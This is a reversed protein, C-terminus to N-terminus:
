VLPLRAGFRLSENGADAPHGGQEPKKNGQDIPRGVVDIGPWGFAEVADRPVGVGQRYEDGLQSKAEANGQDAAKRLWMVSTADDKRM